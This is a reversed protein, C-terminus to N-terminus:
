GLEKTVEGRYSRRKIFGALKKVEMAAKYPAKNLTSLGCREFLATRERTLDDLHPLKHSPTKGLRFMVPRMVCANTVANTPNPKCFKDTDAYVLVRKQEAIRDRLEESKEWDKALGLCNM